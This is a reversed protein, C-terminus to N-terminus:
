LRGTLKVHEIANRQRYQEREEATSLEAIIAEISSDAEIALTGSKMLLYGVSPCQLTVNGSVILAQDTLCKTLSEVERRLRFIEEDREDGIECEGDDETVTVNRAKAAAAEAQAKLVNGSTSNGGANPSQMAQADRAGVIAWGTLMARFVAYSHVTNEWNPADMLVPLVCAPYSSYESGENGYRVCMTAGPGGKASFWVDHGHFHGLFECCGYEACDHIFKPKTM